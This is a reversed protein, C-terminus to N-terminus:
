KQRLQKENKRYRKVENWLDEILEDRHNIESDKDEQMREIKLYLKAVAFRDKSNYKSFLSSETDV